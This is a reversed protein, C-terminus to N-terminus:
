DEPRLIEGASMQARGTPTIRNGEDDMSNRWRRYRVALKDYSVPNGWTNGGKQMRHQQGQVM